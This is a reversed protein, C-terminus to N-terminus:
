NTKKKQAVTSKKPGSIYARIFFRVFLILYSAYILFALNLNGFSQQCKHDTRTKIFYVSVSIAVGVVMQSIQVLTVCAAVARNVRIGLAAIAFYTYMLSHALFNMVIFWRGAGIHEAGSHFTYIMVSMHHYCHLFTLPRKRLVLFVTDGLEAIKSFAFFLYWHAGVSDPPFCRCVSHVLGEDFVAHFFEESTRIFGVISFVALAGNWAFLVPRLELPKRGRMLLQLAKVVFFYVVSITVTHWWYDRFLPTIWTHDIDREFFFEVRYRYYLRPPNNSDNLYAPTLDLGGLMEFASPFLSFQPSLLIAILLGSRNFPKLFRDM